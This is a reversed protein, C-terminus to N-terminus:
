KNQGYDSVRDGSAFDGANVTGNGTLESGGNGWGSVGPSGGIAAALSGGNIQINEVMAKANDSNGGGAIVQGASLSLAAISALILQKM